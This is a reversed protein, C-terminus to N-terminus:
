MVGGNVVASLCEHFNPDALACFRGKLEPLLAPTGALLNALGKTARDRIAPSSATFMCALTIGTLRIVETDASAVEVNLAWESIEVARDTLESHNGTFLQSWASDLKGPSLTILRQSLYDANWAHSPVCSTALLIALKQEQDDKWLLDLIEKTRPSFATGKRERLSTHFVPRFEHPYFYVDPNGFFSRLDFIEKGHIEAVAAWLAGLVGVWRPNFKLISRGTPESRRRLLFACPAEQDFIDEVNIGRCVKVLHEAFLNEQLRQFSFRVVESPRSWDTIEDVSPEPDRRLIDSGEIVELWTKERLPLVRFSSGILDIADHLPISDERREVMKAALADLAALLARHVEETGDYRTGLVRAKTELVFRFIEKAGRVGRPFVTMGASAMSRCVSTMFLPNFFEEDLVPATPRAIGKKDMFMRLAAEREETTRFGSVGVRVLKGLPECNKPQGDEDPYPHLDSIMAKPVVYKLYEERCSLVLAIRDHRNVEAIFGALHNRWVDTGRGENLADIVLLARTGAAEAALNLATLADNFTWGTLELWGLISTRPDNDLIYQGLIHIVPAGEGLAAQAGRALVHSKGAGARGVLLAARAGDIPLLRSWHGGFVEPGTLEYIRTTESLRRRLDEKEVSEADWIRRQLFNHIHNLKRTFRYWYLFWDCVPWQKETGLEVASALTVFERQSDEVTSIDSETVGSEEVLAVASRPDSARAVEFVRRLDQRVNERHYIVDFVKLSETDVHEEPSYRAQLARITRDFHRGIWEPTFTLQDFFYRLLGEAGARLLANELEFATWPEFTVAMGKAEALDKWRKVHKDWKGWAGETSGGRAARRGTFDCPLAMIYRELEPHQTLATRVSEDLNGWNIEDRAPYYKAQYGVKCGTPLIRLAEVGGDGGSGEIRRFVGGGGDHKAILCVLQEFASRKGEVTNGKIHTFDIM